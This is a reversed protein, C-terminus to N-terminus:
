MVFYWNGSLKSGTAVGITTRSWPICSYQYFNSPHVLFSFFFVYPVLPVSAPVDYEWGKSEHNTLEAPWQESTEAALSQSFGKSPSLPSSATIGAGHKLYSFPNRLLERHEDSASLPAQQLIPLCSYLSHGEWGHGSVSSTRILEDWGLTSEPHRSVSTDPMGEGSHECAKCDLPLPQDVSQLDSLFALNLSEIESRFIKIALWM